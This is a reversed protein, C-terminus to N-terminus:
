SSTEEVDPSSPAAGRLPFLVLESDRAGPLGSLIAELRQATGSAFSGETRNIYIHTDVRM